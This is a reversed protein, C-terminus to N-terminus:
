WILESNYLRMRAMKQNISLLPVPSIGGSVGPTWFWLWNDLIAAPCKIIERDRRWVKVVFSRM